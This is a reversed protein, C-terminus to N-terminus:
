TTKLAPPDYQVNRVYSARVSGPNEAEHKAALYHDYNNAEWTEQATRFPFLFKGLRPADYKNIAGYDRGDTYDWPDTTVWNNAEYLEKARKNQLEVGPQYTDRFQREWEPRTGINIAQSAPFRPQITDRRARAIPQGDRDRTDDKLTEEPPARSKYISYIYGVGAITSFIEM